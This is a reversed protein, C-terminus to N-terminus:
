DVTDEKQFHVDESKDSKNTTCKHDINRCARNGHTTNKISHLPRVYCFKHLKTSGGVACLNRCEILPPLQYAELAVDYPANINKLKYPM